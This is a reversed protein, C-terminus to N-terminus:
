GYPQKLTRMIHYRTVLASGTLMGLMCTSVLCGSKCQAASERCVLALGCPWAGSDNNSLSFCVQVSLTM